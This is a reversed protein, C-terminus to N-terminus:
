YEEEYRVSLTERILNWDAVNIIGDFNVDAVLLKENENMGYSNKWLSFDLANVVGDQGQEGPLDGAELPLGTFDYDNVGDNLTINGGVTRCREKQNNECFKRALHQPGKIFIAYNTGAPVGSLNIRGTYVGGEGIRTEVQGFVKEFGGKVVRVIVKKMKHLDVVVNPDTVGQFKIRFNLVPGNQVGTPSNVPLPTSSPANTPSVEGVTYALNQVSAIQMVLDQGSATNDVGIIQSSDSKIELSGSGQAVGKITITGVLLSAVGNTVQGASPGNPDNESRTNVAQIRAQGNEQGLLQASNETLDVNFKDSPVFRVIKVKNKDYDIRIDVFSIKRQSSTQVLYINAAKEENVALNLSAPELKVSLSGLFAGRRLTLRQPLFVVVLALALTLFLLFFLKLDKKNDMKELKIKCV